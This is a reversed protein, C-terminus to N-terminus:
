LCGARLNLIMISAAKASNQTGASNQRKPDGYESVLPKDVANLLIDKIAFMQRFYSVPSTSATAMADQDIHTRLCHPVGAPGGGGGGIRM